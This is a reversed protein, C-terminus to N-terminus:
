NEIHVWRVTNVATMMPVVVHFVMEPSGAIQTRGKRYASLEVIMSRDRRQFLDTKEEGAHVVMRRGSGSRSEMQVLHRSSLAVGSNMCAKLMPQGSTLDTKAGTM